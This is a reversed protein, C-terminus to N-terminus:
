GPTREVVWRRLLVVFGKAGWPCGVILLVLGLLFCALLAPVPNHSSGAFVARLWCCLPKIRRTPADGCRRRTGAM